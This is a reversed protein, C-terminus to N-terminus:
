GSKLWPPYTGRERTSERRLIYNLCSAAVYRSMPEKTM